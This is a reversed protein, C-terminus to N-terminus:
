GDVRVGELAAQKATSSAAASAAPEPAPEGGGDPAGARARTMEIRGQCFGGEAIAVRPALVDGEIRGSSALEVREIAEINGNVSGAIRVVRAKIGGQVHGRPGVVLTGDLDVRGELEGEVHVEVAGSVTGHFRSGAAIVTTAAPEPEPRAVRPASAPAARRSPDPEDRRFLAM